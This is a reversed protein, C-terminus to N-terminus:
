YKKEEENLRISITQDSQKQEVIMLKKNLEEIMSEIHNLTSSLSEENRKKNIYEHILEEAVNLSCTAIISIPINLSILTDKKKKKTL